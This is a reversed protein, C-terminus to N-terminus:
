IGTWSKPVMESAARRAANKSLEAGTTTRDVGEQFIRAGTKIVSSFDNGRKDTTELLAWGISNTGLDLGLVKAM